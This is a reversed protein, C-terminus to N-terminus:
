KLTSETYEENTVTFRAWTTAYVVAYCGIEAEDDQDVLKRV